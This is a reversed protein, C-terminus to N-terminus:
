AVSQRLRFGEALSRIACQGSSSPKGYVDGSEVWWACEKELCDRRLWPRGQRASIMPCMKTEKAKSDSM